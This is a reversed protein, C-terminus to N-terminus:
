HRLRYLWDYTTIKFGVSSALGFGAHEAVKKLDDSDYSSPWWGDVVEFFMMEQSSM